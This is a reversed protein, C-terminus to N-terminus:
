VSEVELQLKFHKDRIRQLRGDLRAELDMGPYEGIIAVLIIALKSWRTQNMRRNTWALQVEGVMRSITDLDCKPVSAPKYIIQEPGLATLLMMAVDALEDYIRDADPVLDRNRKYSADMRIQADIADGMKIAAARFYRRVDVPDLKHGGRDKIVERILDIALALRIIEEEELAEAAETQAFRLSDETNPTPWHHKMEHRFNWVKIYLAKVDTKM